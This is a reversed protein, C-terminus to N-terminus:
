TRSGQPRWRTTKLAWPVRLRSSQPRVHFMIRSLPPRTTEFSIRRSISTSATRLSTLPYARGRPESNDASGPSGLQQAPPRDGFEWAYAACVARDARSRFGYGPVQQHAPAPSPSGLSPTPDRWTSCTTRLGSWEDDPCARHDVVGINAPPENVPLSAVPALTPLIEPWARVHGPTDGMAPSPAETM